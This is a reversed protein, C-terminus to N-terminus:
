PILLISKVIVDQVEGVAFRERHFDAGHDAQNREEGDFGQLWVNDILQRSELSSKFPEDRVPRIERTVDSAHPGWTLALASQECDHIPVFQPADELYKEVFLLEQGRIPDARERAAMSVVGIDNMHITHLM